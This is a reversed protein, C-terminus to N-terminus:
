KKIRGFLMSSTPTFTYPSTAGTVDQWQGNISPAAQLTGGGEWTITIKGDAARTISTFEPAEETPNTMYQVANLFMKAGDDQLDYIGSGQSTIVQERSGTLFVLRHGGLTDATTNGLKAGAQWEGIIMGNIAPDGTTGVTALITGGGAVPDTNVSIGRQVSNTYAVVTAYVNLMLNNADLAIGDFIPHSPTKVSLQIPGITDPITGGTTYGLRINRIVYGGLIMTPATIETNWALTEPPDQYDGSPVSRSIIVLDYTNLAAVDPTGSTVFRTVKHGKSTLLRTYGIDPAETFGATVADAGPENDAPHFSVWAINAVPGTSPPVYPYPGYNRYQTLATQGAANNHATSALGVYIQDPYDQTSDAMKLWDVGNTSRYGSFTDGVRQLRVWVNPYPLPGVQTWGTVGAAAADTAPRNNMEWLNAGGQENNAGGPNIVANIFRSGANLTERAMIGGHTWNDKRDIFAVQVRLDFNGTIQQYAFHFGDANNWYDSGGSIMDFDSGSLPLTSGPELPDTGPTGVDAATLSVIQGKVSAGAAVPNGAKDKVGTVNLTFESGSLGTVTLEVAKGDARLKAASVTGGTLQYNAAAAASTPDLLEDFLVGVLTGGTFAGASLLKPSIADSRVTLTAADSSQVITPVSVNVRYKKGDDAIGLVPTIYISATAGPIDTFTSSGKPASQWQYSVTTGYASTGTAKVVFTATANEAATVDKPQETVTVGAGNPNLFTAIVNGKLFMGAASQAPDPDGVKIFTADSGDGGGGEDHLIEIFYKKGGQLTITNGAPWETSAFADSRKDELTGSGVTQWQYQNSWGTEQAILKKNAPSDDTSLYLHSQDDSSLFFIYDGNSPPIFFGSVRSSYNDTAGWPGGFQGAASSLDPSRISGDLIATAFANIDGPDGNANDWREYTAFGTAYKHAMFDVKSAAAITNGALDKLNSVTLSLAQGETQTSTTLTVKNDNPAAQLTAASITLGTISYNGTATASTPDLPESFVATVYTFSASGSASVLTPPTPDSSVTLTVEASTLSGSGGTIDCTFKAGNDGVTARDIIYHMGTAGEIDTGDRKWQYTYPPTGNVVVTFKVTALPAVSQSQPQTVITLPGLTKDITSLYQGPIPLTQDISGDPAQVAVALNDGGGGEKVLAEIYYIQGKTLTIKAGGAPDKTAWGTGTFTQSCKAEVTSTGGIVDWSRPNSYGAEQAILKKNEPTQDTSLYLNGGDDSSLWFVYDGTAPPYFYGLMQAGYNDAMANNAVVTIDGSADANWEFYPYYYMNDPNNPFKANGTLDTVATGSINLFAKGTIWGQPTAPAAAQAGIAAVVTLALLYTAKLGRIHM